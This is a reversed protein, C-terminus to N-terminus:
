DPLVGTAWIYITSIGTAGLSDTIEMTVTYDASAPLTFDQNIQSDEWGNVTGTLTQVVQSTDDAINVSYSIPFHADWDYAYIQATHTGAQMNATITDSGVQVQETGGTLFLYGIPDLNGIMINNLTVTQGDDASENLGTEQNVNFSIIEEVTSPWSYLQYDTECIISSRFYGDANSTFYKFDFTIGDSAYAYLTTGSLGVSTDTDLVTRGEVSCLDLHQLELEIISNANSCDESLQISEARYSGTQYSWFRLEATRDDSGDLLVTTFSVEGNEDTYGYQTSFSRNDDDYISVWIGSIPNGNVDVLRVRACLETPESFVLPYDLNWWTRLFDANDVEISLSYSINTCDLFGAAPSVDFPDYVTGQGLLDWLGSNPNYTYVPIQLGAMDTNSDGLDNVTPCSGAPIRRTILTPESDLNATKNARARAVAQALNNGDQDKIEVYNFAVSVLDNGDSDAYEGPFYLNDQAVSPDFGKMDVDLQTVEAPIEDVPIDISLEDVASDSVEVSRNATLSKSGTLSDKSLRLSIYNDQTLDSSRARARAATLDVSVSLTQLLEGRFELDRPNDYAVTASYEIFGDASASVIVRGGKEDLIIDSLLSWDSSINSGNTPSAAETSSQLISDDNAISRISVLIVEGSNRDLATDTTVKLALSQTVSVPTESGTNTEEEEPSSGGGCGVVLFGTFVWLLIRNWYM